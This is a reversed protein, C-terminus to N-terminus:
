DGLWFRVRQNLYCNPEKKVPHNQYLVAVLSRLATKDTRLNFVTNQLERVQESLKANQEKYEKITM